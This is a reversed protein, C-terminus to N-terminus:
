ACVEFRHRLMPAIAREVPDVWVWAQGRATQVARVFGSSELEMLCVSLSERQAAEGRLCPDWVPLWFQRARGECRSRQIRHRRGCWCRGSFTHTRKM